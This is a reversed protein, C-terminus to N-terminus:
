CSHYWFVQMAPWFNFDDYWKENFYKLVLCNIASFIVIIEIIWTLQIIIPLHLWNMIVKLSSNNILPLNLLKLQVYPIVFYNNEENQLIKKVVVVCVCLLVVSYFSPWMFFVYPLVFLVLIYKNMVQLIVLSEM